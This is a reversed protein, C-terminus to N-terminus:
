KTTPAATSTTTTATTKENPKKHRVGLNKVARAAFYASSFEPYDDELQNVYKDIEKRLIINVQATFTEGTERATGSESSSGLRSKLADAYAQYRTKFLALKEATLGHPILATANADALAIIAEANTPLETDRMLHWETTSIAAKAALELNGTKHAYAAIASCANDASKILLLANADKEAVKGKPTDDAEKFKLAATKKKARFDDVFNKLEAISNVTTENDNLVSDVSEWMTQNNENRKDM